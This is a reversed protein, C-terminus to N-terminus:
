LFYPSQEAELNYRKFEIYGADDEADIMIANTDEVTHMFTETVASTFHPIQLIKYEKIFKEQGIIITRKQASSLSMFEKWPNYTFELTEKLNAM